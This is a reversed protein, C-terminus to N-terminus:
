IQKRWPKQMPVPCKATTHEGENGCAACRLERKSHAYQCKLGYKCSNTKSFTCFEGKKDHDETRTKAEACVDSSPRRRSSYSEFNRSKGVTPFIKGYTDIVLKNPSIAGFQIKIFQTISDRLAPRQDLVDTKFSYYTGGGAAKKREPLTIIMLLYVHPDKDSSYEYKTALPLHFIANGQEICYKQISKRQEDTL